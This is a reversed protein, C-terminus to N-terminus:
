VPRGVAFFDGKPHAILALLFKPNEAVEERLLVEDRQIQGELFRWSEGGDIREQHRRVDVDQDALM